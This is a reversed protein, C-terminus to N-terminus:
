KDFEEFFNSKMKLFLFDELYESRIKVLNRESSNWEIEPEFKANYFLLFRPDAKGIVLSEFYKVNIPLVSLNIDFYFQQNKDRQFIKKNQLCPSDFKDTPELILDESITSQKNDEDINIIINKNSLEPFNIKVNSEKGDKIESPKFLNEILIKNKAASELFNFIKRVMNRTFGSAKVILVSYSEYKIAYLEDLKRFYYNQPKNKDYKSFKRFDRLNKLFEIGLEFKKMDLNEDKFFYKYSRQICSFRPSFNKNSIAWATIRITRPLYNNIYTDYPFNKDIFLVTISCIMNIGSVGADTRGAFEMDNVKPNDILGCTYLARILTDAITPANEQEVLGSFQRGDYNFKLLIKTKLDKNIRKPNKKELIIKILKEKELTKLFEEYRTM